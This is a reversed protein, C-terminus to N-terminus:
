GWKQMASFCMAISEWRFDCGAPHIHLLISRSAAFQKLLLGCCCWLCNFLLLKSQPHSSRLTRASCRREPVLTEEAERTLGKKPEPVTRLPQLRVRIQVYAVHKQLNTTGGRSHFIPPPKTSTSQIHHVLSGRILEALM